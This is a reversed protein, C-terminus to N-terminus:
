GRMRRLAQEVERRVEPALRAALALYVAAGVAIEAAFRAVAPV